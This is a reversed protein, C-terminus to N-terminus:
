DAWECNDFSAYSILVQTKGAKALRSCGEMADINEFVGVTGKGNQESTVCIFGTPEVVEVKREDLAEATFLLKQSFSNQICVQNAGAKHPVLGTVSKHKDLNNEGDASALEVADVLITKMYAVVNARDKEKKLKFRMKAKAKKDGLYNRLFKKPNAIYDFVQKEDWILGKLGAAKMGKGYRYGKYSAAPRGIINNLVPGTSNKANEGVKHCGKCKKFIKEGTVADGIPISLNQALLFGPNFMLAALLTVPLIRKSPWQRTPTLHRTPTQHRSPM